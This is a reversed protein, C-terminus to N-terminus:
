TILPDEHVTNSLHWAGVVVADDILVYNIWSRPTDPNDQLLRSREATAGLM